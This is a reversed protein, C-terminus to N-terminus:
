RSSLVDLLESLAGVETMGLRAHRDGLDLVITARGALRGQRSRDLAFSSISAYPIQESFGAGEFVMAEPGLVLSGVLPEDGNSAWLAAYRARTM